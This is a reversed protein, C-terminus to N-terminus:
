PRAAAYLRIAVEVADEVDGAVDKVAIWLLEAGKRRLLKRGCSMRKLLM